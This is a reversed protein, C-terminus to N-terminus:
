CRAACNGSELAQDVLQRGAGGNAGLIFLRMQQAEM